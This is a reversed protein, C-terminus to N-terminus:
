TDESPIEENDQIINESETVTKHKKVDDRQFTIYESGSDETYNEMYLTGDLGNLKPIIGQLRLMKEDVNELTGLEVKANGFYLSVNKESDFYIQDTTISYKSLLQTINLIEKFITDDEVPLKDYLVVHDFSLGTVCPVDNQRVLSSEVVIGDKDFYMFRDLYEVFGAISKEYVTISISTPSIIDVDMTEVFPINDVTKNRYKLFLYLSNHGFRGDMVIDQIQESTYHQNGTVSVETVTYNDKIYIYGGAIVCLVLISILIIVTNRSLNM